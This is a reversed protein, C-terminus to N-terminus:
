SRLRPTPATSASPASRENTLQLSENPPQAAARITARVLQWRGARRVYTRRYQVELPHAGEAGRAVQHMTGTVVATDGHSEATRRHVVLSDFRLTGGAIARLLGAKTSSVGRYNTTLLDDAYLLSLAATDARVLAAGLSDDVACIRRRAEDADCARAASADQARAARGVLALVLAVGVSRMFGDV